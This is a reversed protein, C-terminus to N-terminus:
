GVARAKTFVGPAAREATRTLRTSSRSCRRALRGSPHAKNSANGRTRPQLALHGPNFTYFLPVGARGGPLVIVQLPIELLAGEDAALARRRTSPFTRHLYRQV